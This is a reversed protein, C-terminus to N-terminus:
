PLPTLCPIDEECNLPITALAAEAEAMTQFRRSPKKELMRTVVADLERPVDPRLASPAPATQSSHAMVVSIADKGEFPPRGTLMEFLIVGLAYIDSRADVTGRVHEPSMYLPTGMAEGTQTLRTADLCRAIGFDLVKVQSHPGCLVINAPKLDRHIVGLQHAYGLGCCLQRAMATAEAVGLAGSELRDELTCGQVYEMVLYPAGRYEGYGFVRVLNPHSLDRGIEMERAFRRRGDDNVFERKILKLAVVDGFICHSARYVWSTCGEGLNGVIQYDDIRDLDAYAAEAQQLRRELRFARWWLLGLPTAFVSALALALASAALPQSAVRQVLWAAPTSPELRAELTRQGLRLHGHVTGHGTLSFYLEHSSSPDLRVLVPTTGLFGRDTGAEYGDGFVRAGPPVSTLFVFGEPPAAAHAPLLVDLLLVLLMVARGLHRMPVRELLDSAADVREPHQAPAAVFDPLLTVSLNGVADTDRLVIINAKSSVANQAMVAGVVHLDGHVSINSHSYLLGRFLGDDLMNLQGQSFIAVNTNSTLNVSSVISTAGMVFISGTGSIPGVSSLSGNVFVTAGDLTAGGVLSMSGAVYVPGRWYQPNRMGGGALELVGAQNQTSFSAIDLDPLAQPSSQPQPTGVSSGAPLSYGGVTTLQGTVISPFQAVVASATANGAYVSANLDYRGLAVNTLSTAGQVAIAGQASVKGSAAVAYPYSQAQALMEVTASQQLPSLGRAVLSATYPPM